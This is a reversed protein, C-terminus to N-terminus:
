VITQGPLKTKKGFHWRYPGIKKYVRYGYRESFLMPNMKHQVHLVYGFCVVFGSKMTSNIHLMM